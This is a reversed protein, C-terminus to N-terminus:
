NSKSKNKNLLFEVKERNAADFGMKPTIARITDYGQSDRFIFFKNGPLIRYDYLNLWSIYRFPTIIGSELIGYRCSLMKIMTIIFMLIIVFLCAFIVYKGTVIMLVISVIDLIALGTVAVIEWSRNYYLPILIISARYRKKLKRIRMMAYVCMAVTALAVVVFSLDIVLNLIEQTM